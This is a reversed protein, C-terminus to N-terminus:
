RPFHMQSLYSQFRPDSRLSDLAPDVKTAAANSDNSAVAKGLWELAQDKEGNLAYLQAIYYPSVYYKPNELAKQIMWARVGHIGQAKYAGEIEALDEPLGGASRVGEVFHHCADDPRGLQQYTWWLNIHAPIYQPDLELVKLYVKEAKGFERAEYYFYGAQTNIISSLPDLQRAREIEQQAERSRGLRSLCEAYWQHGGEYGPNNDVLFKFETLSRKWDRDYECAIEALVARASPLTPDIALATQAAERAKPFTESPRSNTWIAMVSYAEGIGAYAAAFRPQQDIASQFYALAKVLSKRDRRNLFYLGRLYSEYAEPAIGVDPARPSRVALVKTPIVAAIHDTIDEQIAITDGLPRDYEQAWLLTQANVRVLRVSVRVRDTSKTVSGELVYNVDIERAVEDITKNTNRYHMATTRAIVSFQPSSVQALKTILEDTIGSAFYDDSADSGEPSLPLVLLRISNSQLRRQNLYYGAALGLLILLVTLVVLIPRLRWSTQAVSNPSTNNDKRLSLLSPAPHYNAESSSDDEIPYAPELFRYGEGSITEIFRSERHSDDLARRVNRLATSLNADFDLHLESSWLQRRLEERTVISGASKVLISLVTFPRGKLEIKMGRRRLERRSCDIEFDAFRFKSPPVDLTKGGDHM